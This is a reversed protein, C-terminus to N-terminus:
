ALKVSVYRDFQEPTSALADVAAAVAGGGARLANIGVKKVKHSVVVEVAADVAEVSLEGRDVFELLRERLEAGDWEEPPRSSPATLKMGPLTRTWKRAHDLRSLLERNVLRKHERLISEFERIDILYRGLDTDPADLTLAEGTRPNVVTVPRDLETTM